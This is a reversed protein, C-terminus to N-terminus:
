SGFRAVLAQAREVFTARHYKDFMAWTCLTSPDLVRDVFLKGALHDCEHAFTGATLGRRVEDITEGNPGLARVRIEVARPVLGRLDPVSLCGEYNDFREDTLEEITPNILVTLPVKPKYPYRPNDGVEIVCVQESIGIQPAALGAGHAARMTDILDTILAQVRESTVEAPDVPRAPQRLIPDGIHVIPRVSM